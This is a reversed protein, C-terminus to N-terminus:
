EVLTGVESLPAKIAVERHRIEKVLIEVDKKKVPVGMFIDDEVSRVLKELQAFSLPEYPPDVEWMMIRYHKDSCLVPPGEGPNLINDFRLKSRPPLMYYPDSM